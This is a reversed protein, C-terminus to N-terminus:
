DLFLDVKALLVVIHNLVELADGDNGRPQHYQEDYEGYRNALANDPLHRRM